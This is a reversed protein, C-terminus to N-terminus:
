DTRIDDLKVPSRYDDPKIILVDSELYDLVKETTNGIFVDSILSRSIAGMVVLDAQLEKELECLGYEPAESVLYRQEGPIHFEDALDKFLIEHQERAKKLYNGSLPIQAYSHMVCVDGQSFEAIRSAVKLLKRDLGEPKHRKHMPDVAVLVTPKEKWPKEKVLLLPIPSCRVLQWDDNTLFMRSLASHRRTHHVILDAKYRTAARILIEYGPHGWFAETEVVLGQDRLPGAIGELAIKREELYEARLKPIDVADFYYGEVLYQTYDCAVLKLEMEIMKELALVKDLAPQEEQDPEIVVLVKKLGKM